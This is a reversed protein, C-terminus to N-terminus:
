KDRGWYKLIASEISRPSVPWGAPKTINSEVFDGPAVMFVGYPADGICPKISTKGVGNQGQRLGKRHNDETVIYLFYNM